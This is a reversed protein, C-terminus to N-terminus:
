LLTTRVASLREAGHEAARVRQVGIREVLRQRQRRGLGGGDRQARLLDDRVLAADHVDDIREAPGVEDLPQREVHLLARVHKSVISRM